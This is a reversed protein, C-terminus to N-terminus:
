QAWGLPTEKGCAACQYYGLAMELPELRSEITQVQQGAYHMEGGCKPCTPTVAAPAGYIDELLVTAMDIGLQRRAELVLEEVQALTPRQTDQHWELLRDFLAEASEMLAAKKEAPSRPEPPPLPEPKDIEKGEPPYSQRFWTKYKEILQYGWATKEPQEVVPEMVEEPPATNIQLFELVLRNVREPNGLHPQHGRGPLVHGIAYPMASVMQPFSTPNLLGDEDGWLVQCPVEIKGLENTLNPLTSAINLVYPSARKVDDAIRDRIQPTSDDEMTPGWGLAMEVMRQPAVKLMGAGISSLRHTNIMFPPLQKLSYLPDLLALARVDEPRRLTYMLSMYGGMSHGVLIFPREIDLSDIWEVLTGYVVKFNYLKPMNPKPSDGHGFMDVALAQFGNATLEPILAAWDRHSTIMGHILIVAPGQGQSTYNLIPDNSQTQM